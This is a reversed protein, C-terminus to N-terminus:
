EFDLIKIKRTKLNFMPVKCFDPENGMKEQFSTKGEWSANSIILINNYYSVACKHSHGSVFIDPVKKIMLGNEESPFYQTSAHTPALHRNKLLYKMIKDPANLSYDKMLSPINNAYYPYSFGHYTFVNFGIFNKTSGINVWSPNKTFIVNKLNYLAKAYKKDLFPQPEMLRVGDHNGPSIIIKIDSRIKGFLEAAKEFQEELNKIELEKEQSPYVGVGAVLDGVVFLYKIKDVDSSIDSIKGNLYDIFRLFNKELFLKSGIHVDGIFLAHEEVPSKKRELISSDPFFIEDAFFFDQSASGKFGIVSDLAIEGAKNYVDPKNQNVLVKIKGTLDEAELLINKNKTTKKDLIIGIVSIGKRNGTVKNISILNTLEFRNQLIKKMELFRARFHKVFDEVSFKKGSCNDASSVKVECATSSFSEKEKIMVSNEKTIEISLGLNIKLRELKQRSEEPLESFFNNIQIKNKNFFGKTIIRHSTEKKIKEIILKLSELDKTESFLNLVDPDLLLGRDICYELIKKSDM